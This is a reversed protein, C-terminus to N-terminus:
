GARLLRAQCGPVIGQCARWVHRHERRWGCDPTAHLPPAPYAGKVLEGGILFDERDGQRMAFSCARTGIRLRLTVQGNQAHANIRELFWARARARREGLSVLGALLFALWRDRWTLGSRAHTALTWITRLTRWSKM